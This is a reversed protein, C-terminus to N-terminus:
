FVRWTIVHIRFIAVNKKQAFYDLKIHLLQKNLHQWLILGNAGKYIDEEGMIIKANVSKDLVSLSQTSIVTKKRPFFIKSAISGM